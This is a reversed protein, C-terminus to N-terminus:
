SAVDPAGATGTVAEETTASSAAVVAIDLKLLLSACGLAIPVLLSRLTHTPLIETRNRCFVM